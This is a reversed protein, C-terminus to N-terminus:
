QCYSSPIPGPYHGVYVYMYMAHLSVHTYMHVYYMCIPIHNDTFRRMAGTNGQITWTHVHVMINTCPIYWRYNSLTPTGLSKNKYIDTRILITGQYFEFRKIHISVYLSLLPYKYVKALILNNLCKVLVVQSFYYDFSWPCDSTRLYVM